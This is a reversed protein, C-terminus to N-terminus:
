LHQISLFSYPGPHYRKEVSLPILLPGREQGHSFLVPDAGPHRVMCVHDGGGDGFAVLGGVMANAASYYHPLHAFMSGSNGYGDYGMGNPDRLGALRCLLTITESCDAYLGRKSTVVAHLDTLNRITRTVMPRAQRYHVSPEHRVLYDMLAALENRQATTAM